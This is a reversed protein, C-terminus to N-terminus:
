SIFVCNRGNAKASYVSQDTRDFWSEFSDDPRLMTAGISCTLTEVVQFKETEVRKRLKETLLGLENSDIGYIVAAFEEGGWRGFASRYNRLEDRIIETFHVLTTDGVTHGYQDNVDKFHDIDFMLLSCPTGDTKNQELANCIETEIRGHNFIQTLPDRSALEEYHKLTAKMNVTTDHINQVMYVFRFDHENTTDMRSFILKVWIYEGELNQMQCEFSEMHGPAFHTRLYEPDSRELFLPQDTEWIMNVIMQRWNSYSIQSNMTEDSVETLSLSSTTDRVLDFCMSFLYINQITSVKQKTVTDDECEKGDLEDLIFLYLDTGEMPQITMQVFHPIGEIMLKLLKSYKGIFKGLNPIFVRYEETISKDSNNFHFWLKQVLDGYTGTEDLLQQFVGRRVISRYQDTSQNAVALAGVSNGIYALVDEFTVSDISQLNVM